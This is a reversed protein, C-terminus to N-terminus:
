WKLMVSMPIGSFNLDCWLYLQSCKIKKNMCLIFFWWMIWLAKGQTFHLTFLLDITTRSMHTANLKINTRLIIIPLSLHIIFCCYFALNLVYYDKEKELLKSHYFIHSGFSSAHNVKNLLIYTFWTNGINM